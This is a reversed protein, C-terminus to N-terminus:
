EDRADRADVEPESAARGGLSQDVGLIEAVCAEAVRALSMAEACIAAAARRHEADMCAVAALLGAHGTMEAAAAPHATLAEAGLARLALVARSVQDEDIMLDAM